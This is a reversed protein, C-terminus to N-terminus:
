NRLEQLCQTQQRQGFTQSVVAWQSEPAQPEKYARNLSVIVASTAFNRLEEEGPGFTENLVFSLAQENSARDAGQQRHQMIKQSLSGYAQCFGESVQVHDQRPLVREQAQVSGVSVGALLLGILIKM